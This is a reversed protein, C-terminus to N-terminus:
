RKGKIIKKKKHHSGLFKQWNKQTSQYKRSNADLRLMDPRTYSPPPEKPTPAFDRMEILDHSEDIIVLGGADFEDLNM